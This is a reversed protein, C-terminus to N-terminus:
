AVVFHDIEHDRMCTPGLMPPPFPNPGVAEASVAREDSEGVNRTMSAVM